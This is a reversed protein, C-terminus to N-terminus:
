ANASRIAHAAPGRPKRAATNRRRDGGINFPRLHVDVFIPSPDTLLMVEVTPTFMFALIFVTDGPGMEDGMLALLLADSGSSVGVRHACSAFAVPEGELEIM